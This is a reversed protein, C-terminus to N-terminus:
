VIRAFGRETGDCYPIDSLHYLFSLLYDASDLCHNVDIPLGPDLVGGRHHFSDRVCHVLSDLACGLLQAHLSQVQHRSHTSYHLIYM